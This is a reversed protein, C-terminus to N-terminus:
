RSRLLRELYDREIFPQTPISLRKRIAELIQRARQADIEDPVRTDQGSQFGEGSRNRGLPDNRARRQDDGMGQQGQQQGGPQRDGAMQQMMQQAGQRLAQLAQAQNNTAEGPQGGQLNEGAQGMQGQAEGFQESPDLGMGQLQEGLEGLQQRLAEQQQRLQELAEAFEEPTMQGQQGQQGDQQEGGPQQGQNRQNQRQGRQNQGQQNQGQRRNGPNQRQMQFTENMLNQQQQMLESLKDLAQNLQNGETRRQRQHQGARLNDMMRQMEALMERAADKSGSKALNEIQDMMRQIDRQSLMRQMDNQVFPNQPMPNNRAQETMQRMFENMAQRLENMLKEIEEQSADNQLAESLREQAERLRREAESLDGFEVALAIDWLLDLASRLTDDDPASIIRRYAVRSRFLV